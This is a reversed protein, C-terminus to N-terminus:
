PCFRERYHSMVECYLHVGDKIRNILEEDELEADYNATEFLRHITLLHNEHDLLWAGLRAPDRYPLGPLGENDASTLEITTEMTEARNSPNSAGLSAGYPRLLLM